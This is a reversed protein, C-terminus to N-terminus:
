SVQFPLLGAVTRLLDPFFYLPVFAGALFQSVVAVLMTLGDIQTTWFVSLGILLNVLISVAIAGLLSVLWLGCAAPSKPITLSPSLILLPRIPESVFLQPGPFVDRDAAFISRM